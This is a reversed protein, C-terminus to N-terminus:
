EDGGQIITTQWRNGKKKLIHLPLKGHKEWRKKDSKFKQTERGKVDEVWIELYPDLAIVLFDATYTSTEDPLFFKPQILYELILGQEKMLQLEQARQMEAKSAWIRGMFKRQEKPAVNYKNYAM